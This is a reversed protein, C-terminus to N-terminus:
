YYIIKLRWTENKKIDSRDSTELHSAESLSDLSETVNVLMHMITLKDKDALVKSDRINLESIDKKQTYRSYHKWVQM